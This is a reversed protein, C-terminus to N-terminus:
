DRGSSSQDTLCAGCFIHVCLWSGFWRRTLGVVLVDDFPVSGLSALVTSSLLELAVFDLLIRICDATKNQIKM